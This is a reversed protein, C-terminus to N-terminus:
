GMYCLTMPEFVKPAMCHWIMAAVLLQPPQRQSSQSEWKPNPQGFWPPTMKPVPIPRTTPGLESQSQIKTPVVLPCWMHPTLCAHTSGHYM